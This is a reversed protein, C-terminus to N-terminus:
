WGYDYLDYKYSFLLQFGSIKALTALIRLYYMVNLIDRMAKKSTYYAILTFTQSISM